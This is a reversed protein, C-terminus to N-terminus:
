TRVKSKHPLDPFNSKTTGYVHTSPLALSAPWARVRFTEPNL